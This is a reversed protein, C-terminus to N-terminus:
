FKLSPRINELCPSYLRGRQTQLEFPIVYAISRASRQHANLFIRWNGEGSKIFVPTSSFVNMKRKYTGCM